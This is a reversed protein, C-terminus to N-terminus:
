RRVQVCCGRTPPCGEDLALELRSCRALALKHWSAVGVESWESLSVPPLPFAYNAVDALLCQALLEVTEEVGMASNKDRADGCRSM